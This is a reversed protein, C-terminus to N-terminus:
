EAVSLEDALISTLDPSPRTDPWPRSPEGHRVGGLDWANGTVIDLGPNVELIAMQRELFEPRWLDDSDLIALVAASSHALASNRAAPLGRNAQRVITIRPDADAQRRAVEYTKDASGDDVVILEFDTFTQTQVSAIAQEIYPGVNYAAMMVSVAPM